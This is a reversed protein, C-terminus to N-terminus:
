EQTVRLVEEIDTIGDLAKLLGDQMMTTMGHAIAYKKIDSTPAADLILRELEDGREIIEYIGIRGEYGLNNCAACGEARYFVLPNPLTVEASAPIEHLIKTVKELLVPEVQVPKKCAVCLRRVLRQAIIANLGPAIVFPKVGMNILRPIAGAADNTHLTTLVVHGTLAAQLAVDATEQDRIEGVMIVDPDQRLIARLGSAFSMGATASIPTQNVGELKYEVPDELTIIKIGSQNLQNLFAYLTTTKGSGTPGTTVIMGNPKALQNKIAQYSKGRLGLDDLRLNIAQSSLIRLVAGEGYASPLISVRVDAPKGVYEYSFRGDQPM